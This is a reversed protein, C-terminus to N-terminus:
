FRPQAAQPFTNTRTPPGRMGLACGKGRWRSQTVWGMTIREGILILSGTLDFISARHDQELNLTQRTGSASWAGEFTRWEATSPIGQSPVTPQSCAAAFLLPALVVWLRRYAVM